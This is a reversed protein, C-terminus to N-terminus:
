FNLGKLGACKGKICLVLGVCMHSIHHARGHELYGPCGYAMYHYCNLGKLWVSMSWVCPVLTNCVYSISPPTEQGMEFIWPCDHTMHQYWTNSTTFFRQWFNWLLQDGWLCWPSLVRIPTCMEAVTNLVIDSLWLCLHAVVHFSFLHLKSLIYYCCLSSSSLTTNLGQSSLQIASAFACVMKIGLLHSPIM